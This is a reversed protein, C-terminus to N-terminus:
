CQLKTQQNELIHYTNFMYVQMKAMGMAM